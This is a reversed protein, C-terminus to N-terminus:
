APVLQVSNLLLLMVVVHDRSVRLRDVLNYSLPSSSSSDATGADTSCNSM